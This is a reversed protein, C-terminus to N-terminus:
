AVKEFRIKEQTPHKDVRPRMERNWSKGGRKGIERWGSARLSTGKETDLIYTVLRNYGLERTVRWSAGYLMSAANKTGDTCLRTVELTWGDQLMRSVPRGVTAVGVIKERDSCAISFKHGQSPKHHRHYQAIFACAEDFEIPVIKM